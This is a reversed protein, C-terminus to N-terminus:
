QLEIIVGPPWNLIPMWCYFLTDVRMFGQVLAWLKGRRRRPVPYCMLADCQKAQEAAGDVSQNLIVIIPVDKGQVRVDDLMHRIYPGEDCTPILVAINSLIGNSNHNRM